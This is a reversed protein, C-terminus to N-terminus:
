TANEEMRAHIYDLARDIRRLSADKGVLELTVDIGPSAARGVVAVRLPQAVKGMKLELSESVDIVAQHLTEGTWDDIGALRERMM